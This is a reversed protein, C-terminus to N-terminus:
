RATLALERLHSDNALKAPLRQLSGVDAALGVDVEQSLWVRNHTCRMKRRLGSLPLPFSTVVKIAFVSNSAAYRVDAAIALDVGGGFCIGHIACVVPKDCHEIESV